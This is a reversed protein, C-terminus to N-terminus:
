QHSRLLFEVVESLGMGNSAKLFVTDKPNLNESLKNMLNNKDEKPFYHLTNVSFTSQLKEALFEMQPGYLYVEDIAEPSLHESMGEHMKRSLEGLELMDGLVVIKKGEVSIDSFTDLVLGMATPNANYVDSLIDIGSATQLWQTRNKTLDFTALSKRMNQIDVHFFRGVLLAILANSVNYKGLVPIAFIEDPYRNVSFRTESKEESLITASLTAESDIGFSEVTQNVDMIMEKLLPENNPIILTGEPKLGDIIEMKAEAIGKRSGLHELHSEGILTIAAVDPTAIKSLVTIDDKHDMGMELVLMETNEPMSLITYPLGIDNNFNGQTKYTAYTTSLVAATMDKTTTKGNSGTIGVVKPGIKRLYFVALHQMARLTDDVKIYPIQSSLDHESLVLSAGKEMAQEIFDHGDRNGKLPIFLSGTTVKRTDFEVSTVQITENIGNVLVGEVALLIEKETLNMIKRVKLMDFLPQRKLDAEESM